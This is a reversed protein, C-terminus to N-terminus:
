TEQTLGGNKWELSKAFVARNGIGVNKGKGSQSLFLIM